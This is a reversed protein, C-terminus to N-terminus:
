LVYMPSVSPRHEAQLPPRNGSPVWHTAGSAGPDTHSVCGGSVPSRRAGLRLTHPDLELQLNTDLRPCRTHTVATPQTPTVGVVGAM